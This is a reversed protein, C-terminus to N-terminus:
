HVRGQDSAQRKGVHLPFGESSEPKVYSVSKEFVCYFESNTFNHPSLCEHVALPLM